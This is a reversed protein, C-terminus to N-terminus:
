RRAARAADLFQIDLGYMFDRDERYHRLMAMIAATNFLLIVAGGILDSANEKEALWRATESTAGKASLTYVSAGHADPRSFADAHISVFVDARQRRAVTTRPRLTLYYDGKRTLEGRYGPANDFLRQLEKAIAFAVHKEKM